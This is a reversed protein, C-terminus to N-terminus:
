RRHGGLMCGTVGRIIERGIQSAFGPTDLHRQRNDPKGGVAGLGSLDSKVEALSLPVGISSFLVALRQLTVMKDTGIVGTIQGLRNVLAPLLSLRTAEHRPILTPHTMPIEPLM